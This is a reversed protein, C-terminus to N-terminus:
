MLVISLRLRWRWRRTRTVPASPSLPTPSIIRTGADGAPSAPVLIMLGVGNDGLAGTVRVRRHLHLNLNDITSIYIGGTEDEIAFGQDFTSSTFVGSPVTVSGEVTVM